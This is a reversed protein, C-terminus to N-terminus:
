INGAVMLQYVGDTNLLFVKDNGYLISKINAPLTGTQYNVNEKTGSTKIQYLTNDSASLTIFSNADIWACNALTAQLKLDFAAKTLDSNNLDYIWIGNGSQYLLKSGDPSFLAGVSTGDSTIKSGSKTEFNYIYVDVNNATSQIGNETNVFIAIRKGDPSWVVDPEFDITKFQLLSEFNSGDTNAMGLEKDTDNQFLYAIKDGAPSFTINKIAPPLDKMTINILDARDLSVIWNLTTGEGYKTLYPIQGGSLKESNTVKIALQRFTPSWAVKNVQYINEIISTEKQAGFNFEKLNFFGTDSKDFYSLADLDKDYVAFFLEKDHIKEIKQLASLEFLVAGNNQASSVSITKQLPAFGEKEVTISHTGRSLSITYPSQINQYTQGDIVLTAGDQNVSINVPIKKNLSMFYYVLGGIVVVAVVAIAIILILRKPLKKPLKKPQTSSIARATLDKKSTGETMMPKPPFAGQIKEQLNTEKETKPLGTKQGDFFFGEKKNEQSPVPENNVRYPEPTPAQNSSTSLDSMIPKIEPSIPINQKLEEGGLGQPNMNTGEM